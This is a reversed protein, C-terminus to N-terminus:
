ILDQVTIPLPSPHDQANLAISFILKPDVYTGAFGGNSIETMGIVNNARNMILIYFQETMETKGLHWNNFLIDYVQKSTTIKPRESAKYLGRRTLQKIQEDITFAQKDYMFFYHNAVLAFSVGLSATRSPLTAHITSALM